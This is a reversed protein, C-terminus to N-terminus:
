ARSPGVKSYAAVHAFALENNSRAFREAAGAVGRRVAAGVCGVGGSRAAALPPPPPPLTEGATALASPPAATPPPPPPLPPLSSLLLNCGAAIPCVLAGRCLSGLSTSLAVRAFHWTEAEQQGMEVRTETETQHDM